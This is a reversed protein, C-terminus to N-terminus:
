FQRKRERMLEDYTDANTMLCQGDRQIGVSLYGRTNGSMTFRVTGLTRDLVWSLSFFPSARFGCPVETTGSSPTTSFTINNSTALAVSARDQESDGHKVPLGANDLSGASTLFSIATTPIVIDGVADGTDQLRSFQCSRKGGAVWAQANVLDQQADRNPRFSTARMDVVEAPGSSPFLCLVFDAAHSGPDTTWGVGLWGFPGDTSLVFTVLRSAEARRVVDTTEFWVDM